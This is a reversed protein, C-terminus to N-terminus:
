KRIRRFLKRLLWYLIALPVLIAGGVIVTWIIAIVLSQALSVVTQAAEVISQSPRFTDSDLLLSTEETMSVSITAFSTVSEYYTLQAEYREITERVQSLYYRVNLIDEVSTAIGLVELYGAEEAQANSLRAQIDVVQETVDDSSVQAYHVTTALSQIDEMANTFHSADIRVTAFGDVFENSRDIYSYEIYGDYTAATDELALMSVSVSDVRMEISGTRIIYSETSIDTSGTDAGDFASRSTSETEAFNMEAIGEGLEYSPSPTQTYSSSSDRLSVLILVVLLLVLVSSVWTWITKLDKMNNQNVKLKGVLHVCIMSLM